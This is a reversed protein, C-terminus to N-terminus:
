LFILNDLNFGKDKLLDLITNKGLESSYLKYLFLLEEISYDKMINYLSEKIRNEFNNEM